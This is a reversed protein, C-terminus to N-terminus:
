FDVNLLKVVTSVRLRSPPASTVCGSQTRSNFGPRTWIGAGVHTKLNIKKNQQPQTKLKQGLVWKAVFTKLEKAINIQKTYKSLM